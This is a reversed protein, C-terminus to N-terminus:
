PMEDATVQPREARQPSCVGYEIFISDGNLGDAAGAFTWGGVAARTFRLTEANILLIESPPVNVCSFGMVNGIGRVRRCELETQDFDEHEALSMALYLDPGGPEPELNLMFLANEELTFPKSHFLAPEYDEGGEPYDHFGGTQQPQCELPPLGAVAPPEAAEVTLAVVVPAALCCM